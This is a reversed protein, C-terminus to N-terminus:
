NQQRFVLVVAHGAKVIPVPRVETASIQDGVVITGTTRM